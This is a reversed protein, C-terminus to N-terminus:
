GEDRSGRPTAMVFEKVVVVVVVPVVLMFGEYSEEAGAEDCCDGAWLAAVTAAGWVCAWGGACWALVGEVSGKRM